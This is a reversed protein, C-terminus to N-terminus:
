DILIDINKKLAMQTTEFTSHSAIQAAFNIIYLYDYIFTLLYM